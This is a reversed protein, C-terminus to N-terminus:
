YRRVGLTIETQTSQDRMQGELAIKVYAFLFTVFSLLMYLVCVSCMADM